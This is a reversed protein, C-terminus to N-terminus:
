KGYHVLILPVKVPKNCHIRLLIEPVINELPFCLVSHTSRFIFCLEASEDQMAEYLLVHHLYTCNNFCYVLSCVDETTQQFSLNDVHIIIDFPPSLWACLQLQVKMVATANHWDTCPSCPKTELNIFADHLGIALSDSYLMFTIKLVLFHWDVLGSGHGYFVMWSWQAHM